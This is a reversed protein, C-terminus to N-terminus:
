EELGTAGMFSYNVGREDDTAKAEWKLTAPVEHFATGPAVELRDRWQRRHHMTVPPARFAVLLAGLIGAAFLGLLIGTALLLLNNM